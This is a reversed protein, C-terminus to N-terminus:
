TLSNSLEALPDSIETLRLIYFEKWSRSRRICELLNPTTSAALLHTASCAQGPGVDTCTENGASNTENTRSILFPESLYTVNPGNPSLNYANTYNVRIYWLGQADVTDSKYPYNISLLSSNVQFAGASRYGITDTTKQVFEMLVNSIGHGLANLTNSYDWRIDYEPYISTAGPVLLLVEGSFPSIIHLSSYGPDSVSANHSYAPLGACQNTGWAVILFEFIVSETHQGKTSHYTINTRIAYPDSQLNNLLIYTAGTANRQFEPNIYILDTRSLDSFLLEMSSYTINVLPESYTINLMLTTTDGPYPLGYDSAYIDTMLNYINGNASTEICPDLHSVRASALFPLCWFLLLGALM